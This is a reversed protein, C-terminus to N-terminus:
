HRGASASPRPPAQINGRADIVGNEALDAIAENIQTQMEGQTEEASAIIEGLLNYQEIADAVAKVADDGSATATGKQQALENLLAPSLTAM